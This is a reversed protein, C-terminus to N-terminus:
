SAASALAAETAELTEPSDVGLTVAEPAIQRVLGSLVTKPGVEVFTTVGRATLLRVSEVWRVPACVQAVLNRRIQEADTVVEASVNAVVPIAADHFALAALDVALKEEAPRMLACHFPASVPLEIARAKRTKFLAMARTVAERHGAIVTQEPANFNAPGCVQGEAAEACVEAVVDATTRLVAAMAGVGVPVAAQMYEGRKRVTRVADAFDLVGAAVLAGYEGLSHGAVFKPEHGRARLVRWAAIAHTLVAPQTNATLNLDAEPGDFCLTSLSFGLADDAEQFTAKAEPFADCLARGMGVYQSAQGPFLFAIM